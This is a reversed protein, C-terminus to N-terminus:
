VGQIVYNDDYGSMDISGDLAYEGNLYVIKRFGSGSYMKAEHFNIETLTLSVKMVQSNVAHASNIIAQVFQKEGKWNRYCFINYDNANEVFNIFEFYNQNSFQVELEHTRYDTTGKFVRPAKQKSYTKQVIDKNFKISSVVFDMRYAQQLDEINNLWYNILSVKITKIESDKYANSTNYVRLKYELEVNCPCTYDIIKDETNCNDAIEIWKKTINDKRYISISKFTPEQEGFITIQVSNSEEILYFNPILIDSFTVNFKIEVWESYLNYKNKIRLKLTYDDESLDSLQVSPVTTIVLDSDIQTDTSDLVIYEYAVQEDTQKWDIVPTSSYYIEKNNIIPAQPKGYGTFTVLKTVSRTPANKWTPTYYITLELTNNGKHFTNAGYAIKRETTGTSVQNNNAKLIWRDCFENTAFTATVVDDVNRNLNSPEVNYIIPTNCTLDVAIGETASITDFGSEYTAVVKFNKYHEKLCGESLTLENTTTTGLLVNEAYWALRTFNNATCSLTIPKDINNQSLSLDSVSPTIRSLTITKSYSASISPVVGFGNKIVEIKILNEGVKLVGKNIVAMKTGNPIQTYLVDNVYISAKDQYTSEWTVNTPNDILKDNNTLTVNTITPTLRNLTFTKTASVTYTGEVNTQEPSTVKVIVTNKGVKLVGIPIEISNTSTGLTAHLKDNLYILAKAQNKSEWSITTPNDVVSADVSLNSVKPMIHIFDISKTATLDGNYATVIVRNRGEQLKSYPVTLKGSDGSGNASYTSTTTGNDSVKLVEIRFSATNTLSPMIDYTDTQSKDRAIKISNVSPQKFVVKSPIFWAYETDNLMTTDYTEYKIRKGWLPEFMTIIEQYTANPALKISRCQDSVSADEHLEQDKFVVVWTSGNWYSLTCDIESSYSQDDYFAQNMSCSDWRDGSALPKVSEMLETKPDLEFIAYSGRVNKEDLYGCEVAYHRYYLAM